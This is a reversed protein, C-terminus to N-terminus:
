RSASLVKDNSSGGDGCYMRIVRRDLSRNFGGSRLQEVSAGPSFKAINGQGQFLAVPGVSATPNLDIVISTPLSKPM